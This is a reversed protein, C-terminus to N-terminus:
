KQEKNKENSLSDSSQAQVENSMGESVMNVATTVQQLSAAPETFTSTYSEGTMEEDSSDTFSRQAANGVTLVIAVIAAARYFPQLRAKLSISRAKVVPQGVAELIKADFDDGLEMKGAEDEYRFLDQYVKLQAPVNEQRFFSRLIQEEELTTEGDFYREVLQQIYKYDM